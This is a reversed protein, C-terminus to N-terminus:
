EDAEMHGRGKKKKKDIVDDTISEAFDSEWGTAVITEPM